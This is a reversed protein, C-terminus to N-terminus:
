RRSARWELGLANLRERHAIVAWPTGQHEREVKDWANRIEKVLEKVKEEPTAVKKNSGVRFGTAGPPLEPLSDTRIQALLFNYETVYVIRSMLRALIFDYLAKWRHSPEEDRKGAVAKLEDLAEALYLEAKGPDGQEKLVQKKVAASSAGSFTEKMSFKKADNQLVRLARVIASRLPFKDALNEYDLMSDTPKYAEVDNAAFLPLNSVKVGEDKPGARTVRIPPILNIESLIKEVVDKKAIVDGPPVPLQLAVQPPRADPDLAVDGAPGKGALRPAQKLEKSKALKMEVYKAAEPLLAAIPMPQPHEQIRKLQILAQNLGMLFLSGDEFEYANQELVCSSVVEVGPPPQGLLEDLTKGMASGGPRENGRGPDFRCVDLILVKQRAPCKKLREYVWSLPILTEPKDLQGEIPVLYADKKEEDEIVHGAFFLIVHDQTLSTMLFHEITREIVGKLPAQPDIQARDSLEFSQTSPVHLFTELHNKLVRTSSGPFGKDRPYGYHLPNAFLYDNVSIILARRPFPDKDTIKRKPEVKKTTAGHQKTTEDTRGTGVDVFDDKKTTSDTTAAQFLNSLQPGLGIALGVAAAVVGVALLAGKWWGKGPAAARRRPELAPASILPLDYSFADPPPPGTVVPAAPVPRASAQKPRAQFIKQCHKCRVAKRVWLTPVRLVNRCFPCKLQVVAVM